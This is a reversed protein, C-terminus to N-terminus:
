VMGFLARAGVIVAGFAILPLDVATSIVSQDSIVFTISYAAPLQPCFCDYGFLDDVYGNDDDDTGNLKEGDNRWLASVLPPAVMLGSDCLAIVVGKGTAGEESWAAPAQIRTLNWPVELGEASFADDADDRWDSVIQKYVQKQQELSPGRGGRPFLRDRMRVFVPLMTDEDGDIGRDLKGDIPSPLGDAMGLSAALLWMM